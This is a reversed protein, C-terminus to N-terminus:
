PRSSAPCRASSLGSSGDPAADAIANIEMGGEASFILVPSKSKRDLTISLYLERRAGILNTLFIRKVPLGKIELGFISEGKDLLEAQTRAIQIGGAKGRGGTAVQAKLVVPYEVQAAACRLDEASSVVIGQAAAIRYKRFLEHAQYELLKM